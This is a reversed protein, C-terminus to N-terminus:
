RREDNTERRLMQEPRAGSAALTVIGKDHATLREAGGTTVLVADELRVGSEGPWYIGPELMIVMGAELRENSSPVLRPAEHSTVGVGHGTHHAYSAHGASALFRRVEADIRRAWAGPRVLSIALELAEAVTRHAVLQRESPTGAYYTGCSDSWYGAWRAGLDVVLADGERLPLTTPWGGSSDQRYGVVCDNGLPVRRGAAQEVASQVAVWVDIERQGVTAANRAVAQGVEALQFARRLKALEEATKIARAPLPLGDIAVLTAGTARLAAALLEPLAGAEVGVRGPRAAGIAEALAAVVEAPGALPAEFRYSPFAVVPLTLEDLEADANVILTFAGGAYWLLPPSAVFPSPGSQVPAVYGALWAVSAPDSFLAWDLGQHRLLDHARARQEHHM